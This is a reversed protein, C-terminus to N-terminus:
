RHSLSDPSVRRPLLSRLPPDERGKARAATTSYAVDAPADGKPWDREKGPHDQRPRTLIFAAINAAEDDTLVAARDHPMNHRLFSALSYQRALGAGVSYSDAGWVAPALPTGEGQAGHCRACYGTYEGAGVSPSGAVKVVRADAPRPTDRLTAIYAVMDRMERSEEPLMRGALSRAICENIRRELSEEM